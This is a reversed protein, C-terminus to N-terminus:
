NHKDAQLTFNRVGQQVGILLRNHIQRHGKVDTGTHRLGTVESLHQFYESVSRGGRGVMRKDMGWERKGMEGMEGQLTTATLRHPPSAHMHMSVRARATNEGEALM